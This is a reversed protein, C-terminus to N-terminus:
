NTVRKSEATRRFRRWLLRMKRSWEVFQEFWWASFHMFGLLVLGGLVVEDLWEHHLFLQVGADLTRSITMGNLAASIESLVERVNL